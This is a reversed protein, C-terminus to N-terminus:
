RPLSAPRSSAAEGGRAQEDAEKAFDGRDGEALSTLRPYADRMTPMIIEVPVDAYSGRQRLYEMHTRGSHDFPHLLADARGDFDLARLRFKECLSLNFTPTAKVWRRELWLETFGHYIFTDTGILALLRPTALHNRVDAFAVRAPIGRARAAAAFLAAKGVCYGRGRALVASARYTDLDDYRMYPDYRIEDRVAYYLKVAAAVAGSEAGAVRAAFATVSPHDSDIFHAPQRFVADIEAAAATTAM